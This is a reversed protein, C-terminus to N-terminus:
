KFFLVLTLDDDNDIYSVSGKYYPNGSGAAIDHYKRSTIIESVAKNYASRNEFRLQVNQQDNQNKAANLADEYDYSDFISKEYVYFNYKSGNAKPSWMDSDPEHDKSLQSSTICYYDYNVAKQYDDFGYDDWTVDIYYFENDLKVSNWAHPGGAEGSIYSCPIGLVQMIMQFGKAYGACVCKNNVLCGYASRMHDIAADKVSAKEHELADYDYEVSQALYDHVFKVKEYTNAKKNALAAIENVKKILPDIYKQPNSTYKWFDYCEIDIYFCGSKYGWSAAGNWWFFEPHDYNCAVVADYAECYYSYPDSVYMNCRTEGAAVSDMLAEYVEKQIDSLYWYREYVPSIRGVDSFTPDHEPESVPESIPESAESVYSTEDALSTEDYDSTEDFLNRSAHSEESTDGFDFSYDGIYYSFLDGYVSGDDILTFCGSLTSVCAFIVLIVVSVAIIRLLKVNKM